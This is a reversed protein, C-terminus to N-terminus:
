QDSQFAQFRGYRLALTPLVLLNLLTSTALGGLIVIAMPGEVERGAEGSGLALPLLGLGTTVATMLVPLLRESAGRVAADIGWLEGEVAVIHEFHSLMIISNRVTIGFLTVFGVMSGVSLSGGTAFAALVGGVLAFPLNVLLLLSNRFSHFVMSLLMMIGAGALLSYVLLEHQAQSRAEAAGTFAVYVGRPLRVKENVARKAEEVFSALDRGHVNCVVTQRRRTEDHDISYRGPAEFVDALERLPVLLGEGNRVLLDGVQEPAQRDAERLIVAISFVRNGEYVQGVTLGQFAAEIADLVAAPQFGFQLLKDKRLRVVLQPIGPPSEIRQDVAGPIRSITGLVERAVGDLTELDEGFVKIVVEATSGSMVEEIRETLFTKTSFVAGPFREVVERIESEMREAETGAVPKLDVHIESYYPGWTDYFLEARGAQQAVSAVDPNKLLDRTVLGGLRMSERLSSGPATAMHMIFHGERLEPLFEGGLYPVVAFGCAVLVAAVIMVLGQWRYISRLLREYSAKLSTVYIPVRATDAAKPLLLYSLAPTVTLAVVLSALIALIYGVGLPAFLRGQIGSLTLVPLFVLAVIFTAYVVASRVEISADLVIRFLKSRRQSAPTERLRRFINEVDIIADDVVEGIAIALGGLTLTNLSQGFHDLLIVATLLSLPIATISILGTRLNYLFFFLVVAVLAAGTLLSVGVNDVATEIFSAPRFLNPHLKIAASEIAPRLDALAGDIAATVEPTDSGYQSNILLLVGPEGGISADGAKPEPADLVQAVDKIRVTRGGSVRLGIEGLQEPTFSQGQSQLVVRQTDTEVFGAGRIGSAGQTATVLDQISLDFAALREPIAQVQLQRVEGGFTSVSAVGPVALLRPNVTWDAFTRLEMPSRTESTLGIVLVLGTTSTLPAMAPARVGPPIQSVAQTLRESVLQRALYINTGPDFVTTVVSLGQVSQSRIATLGSAGNLASEVPRTVLAEVQEPSLGPAETQVVVQPPAFEPYVNYRAHYLTYVGYFITLCALALIVGRFRISFGVLRTLM